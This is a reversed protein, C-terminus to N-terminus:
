EARLKRARKIAPLRKLEIKLEDVRGSFGLDRVMQSFVAEDSAEQRGKWATRV